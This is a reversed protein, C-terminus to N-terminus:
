TVSRWGRKEVKRVDAVSRIRDLFPLLDRLETDAPDGLFPTVRILNGYNLRHKEPSDDVVLVSGLRYGQRKLKRLPKANCYETTHEDFRRTCREASWVFKLRPTLGEFVRPVVEAAYGAGSSTWVALDFWADVQELFPQVFPRNVIHYPGVRFDHPHISEESAYVLTEDLDLVLLIRDDPM